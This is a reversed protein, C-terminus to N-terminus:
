FCYTSKHNVFNLMYLKDLCTFRSLNRVRELLEVDRANIAARLGVLEDEQHLTEAELESLRQAMDARNVADIRRQDAEAQLQSQATSLSTQLFLPNYSNAPRLFSAQRKVTVGSGM